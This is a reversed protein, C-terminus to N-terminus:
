LVMNKSIKITSHKKFMTAHYGSLVLNKPMHYYSLIMNNNSTGQLVIHFGNYQIYIHYHNLVMNFVKTNGDSKIATGVCMKTLATHLWVHMQKETDDMFTCTQSHLSKVLKLDNEM